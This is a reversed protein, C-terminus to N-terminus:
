RVGLLEAYVDVARPDGSQGLWYLATKRASPHSSTRAVDILAPIGEAKPRQSLVYVAQDRMEDEETRAPDDLIGLHESVANSLWMMVTRKFEMPRNEDRALKLFLKWPDGGDVLILPLLLDSAARPTGREVTESLWAEADSATANVVRVDGRPPPVPGVYVRARTVEGGLVTLVLRAPGHECPRYRGSTGFSSSGDYFSFQARGMVNSISGQGDGCASPRSPYLVEVIGNASRVQQALSQAGADMGLCSILAFPVFRPRM